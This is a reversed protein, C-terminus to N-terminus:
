SNAQHAISNIGGAALATEIDSTLFAEAEPRRKLNADLHALTLGRVFFHAQEGSCLENIPRMERQIATLEASLPTTRFGEHLEEVNDMFHLHDARRLIVMQKPGPTREFLEYMGSLPLSADNEAVLYLTPTHSPWNFALSVPLIGPKPNSAGGPALAVVAHIRPEVEPLALATWGGFSHGVIGIQNADLKAELCWAGSNLLHDLLFRVDPVRSAIVKEWRAARQEGSESEKRRLEEVLVESHDLAAVVYGHSALHTCLFTASRRGASSSHSFVILPYCGPHPEPDRVAMQQQKTSRLPVTFSDQTEPTLDQGAHKADAPYWIECTLIRGRLADYPELTGVGVPFPGRLFPDYSAPSVNEKQRREQIDEAIM